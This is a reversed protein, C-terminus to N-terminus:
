RNHENTEAHAWEPGNVMQFQILSAGMSQLSCFQSIEEGQTTVVKKTLSHDKELLYLLETGVGQFKGLYRFNVGPGSYQDLDCVLVVKRPTNSMLMVNARRGEMGSARVEAVTGTIKIQVGNLLKAGLQPYSSCLAALRAGDVPSEALLAQWQQEPSAKVVHGDNAPTSDTRVLFYWAAVVVLLTLLM